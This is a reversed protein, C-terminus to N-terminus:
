ESVVVLDRITWREQSTTLTYTVHYVYDVPEDTQEGADMDWRSTYSKTTDVTMVTGSMEMDNITWQYDDNWGIEVHVDAIFQDCDIFDQADRMTTATTALYTECDGTQWAQHYQELVDAAGREEPTAPIHAAPAPATRSASSESAAPLATRAQPILLVLAIVVGVLGVGVIVWAIRGRPPRRAPTAAVPAAADPTAPTQRQPTRRRSTSPGRPATGGACRAMGTTTGVRDPRARSMRPLCRGRGMRRECEVVLYELRDHYEVPEPTLNGDADWRSVYSETVSVAILDGITEVDRM